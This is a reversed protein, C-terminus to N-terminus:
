VEKWFLQGIGSKASVGDVLGTQVKAKGKIKRVEAWLNRGSDNTM